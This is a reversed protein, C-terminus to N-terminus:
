KSFNSAEIEDIPFDIGSASNGLDFTYNKELYKQFKHELYTGVAKGDTSGFISKEDHSSEKKAFNKAEKQILQLTLIKKM